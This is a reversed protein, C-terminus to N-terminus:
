RCRTAGNSKAASRAQIAQLQAPSYLRYRGVREYGVGDLSLCREARRLRQDPLAILADPEPVATQVLDEAHMPQLQDARLAARLRPHLYFVLSGVRDELIVVRSPIAGRQNFYQALERASHVQAAPPAIVSIVVAFQAALAMGGAALTRHLRGARCFLLPLWSVLAAVIGTGWVVASFRVDLLQQAALMAAPLFVPGILCSFWLNAAFWRRAPEALRGEIWRSCILAMLIALAPFLPWVYTILKSSALSLFLLGGLLWCLVLAMAGNDAGGSSRQARSAWWQRLGAPLYTIWPLGGGLLIPLYYWIPKNGHRQSDSAYGLLHRDVFYYHLYGPNRVEMAVYWSSAVLGAVALAAAGRLCAALTLRRTALLYTGYAVGVLAVGVLGKTLCALGLLLGIALTLGWQGKVTVARDAEWFLLIALNVWPVLAVDHCAVQTLSLPIVMSAYIVIAAAGATRGFLRWGVMGTTVTGLMGFLMGPLRSAAENMGFVRLSLAQTWSFLIPKDLFPEGLFRPTIWDGREVMEQAISAHLGEDPDVLPNAFLLPFVFFVALVVTAGALLWPWGDKSQSM